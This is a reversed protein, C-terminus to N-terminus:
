LGQGGRLLAQERDHFLSDQEPLFSTDYGESVCGVRSPYSFSFFYNIFDDFVGLQAATCLFIKNKKLDM